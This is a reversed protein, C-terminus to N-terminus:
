AGQASELVELLGAFTGEDGLAAILALARELDEIAV